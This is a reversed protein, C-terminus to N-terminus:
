EVSYVLLFSLKSVGYLASCYFLPIPFLFVFTSDFVPLELHKSEPILPLMPMKSWCGRRLRAMSIGKIVWLDTM